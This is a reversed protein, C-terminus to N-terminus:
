KGLKKKILSIKFKIKRIKKDILVIKYRIYGMRHFINVYRYGTLNVGYFDGVLVDREKLLFKLHKEAEILNKKEIKIGERDEAYGSMATHAHNVHIFFPLLILLLFRFINTM